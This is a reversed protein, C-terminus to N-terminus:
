LPMFCVFLCVPLCVFLFGVGWFLTLDGDRAPSHHVIFSEGTLPSSCHLLTCVVFDGAPENFSQETNLEPNLSVNTGVRLTM